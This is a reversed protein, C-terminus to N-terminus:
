IYIDVKRGLLLQEELVIVTHNAGRQRASVDDDFDNEDDVHDDANDVEDDFIKHHVCTHHEIHLACTAWNRLSQGFMCKFLNEFVNALCVNSLIILYM